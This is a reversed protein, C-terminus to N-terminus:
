DVLLRVAWSRKMTKKKEEGVRRQMLPMSAKMEITM